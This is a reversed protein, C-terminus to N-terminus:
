GHSCCSPITCSFSFFEPKATITFSDLQHQPRSKIIISQSQILRSYYITNENLLLLQLPICLLKTSSNIWSSTHQQHRAKSTMNSSNATSFLLPTQTNKCPQRSSLLFNALSAIPPPYDILITSPRSLYPRTSSFSWAFDTFFHTTQFQQTTYSVCVLVSHTIAHAM